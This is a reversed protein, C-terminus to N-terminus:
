TTKCAQAHFEYHSVYKWYPDWFAKKVILSAKKSDIIVGYDQLADPYFNQSGVYFFREDVMIFKYHQYLQHGDPWVDSTDSFAPHGIHLHDCLIKEVQSPTIPKNEENHVVYGKIKNWIMENSALSPYYEFFKIISSDYPSTTVYVDGGKLLLSAIAKMYNSHKEENNVSSPWMYFVSDLSQQAIYISHKASKLLLYFALNSADEKTGDQLICAGSKGIGLIEVGGEKQLPKASLQPPTMLSSIKGKDYRYESILNNDKLNKDVYSWLFNTFHIAYAATPGAIEAMFDMVPREALYSATDMNVGGTLMLQGDVDIIKSHNYAISLVKSKSKELFVKMLNPNCSSVGAVYVTVGSYPKSKMKSTIDQIFRKTMEERIVSLETKSPYKQPVLHKPIPPGYFGVFLRVIILKNKHALKAIANTLTAKFRGDPFTFVTIDVFHEAKVMANYIRDLNPDAMGVCKKSHQQASGDDFANLLVCTTGNICEKTSTCDPLGFDTAEKNYPYAAYDEPPMGWLHSSPFPIFFDSSLENGYSLSYAANDLQKDPAQKSLIEHYIEKLVDPSQSESAFLTTVSILLFFSVIAKIISM